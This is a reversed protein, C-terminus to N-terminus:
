TDEDFLGGVDMLRFPVLQASYDFLFSSLTTAMDAKNYGISQSGDSISQVGSAFLGDTEGLYKAKIIDATMQKAIDLMQQNAEKRNCFACVRDVTSNYVFDILREDVDGKGILMKITDIANMHGRINLANGLHLRNRPTQNGEGWPCFTYEAM